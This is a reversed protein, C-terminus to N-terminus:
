LVAKEPYIIFCFSPARDPVGEKFMLILTFYRRIVSKQKSYSKCMNKPKRNANSGAAKDKETRITMRGKSRNTEEESFRIKDAM